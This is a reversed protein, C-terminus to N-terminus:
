RLLMRYAEPPLGFNGLIRAAEAAVGPPADDIGIYAEVHPRRCLLVVAEALVACRLVPPIDSRVPCAARLDEWSSCGEYWYIQAAAGRDRLRQYVLAGTETSEPGVDHPRAGTEMVVHFILATAAEEWQAATWSVEAALGPGSPIIASDALAGYEFQENPLWPDGLWWSLADCRDQVVAHRNWARDAYLWCAFGDPVVDVRRMGPEPGCRQRIMYAQLDSEPYLGTLLSESAV